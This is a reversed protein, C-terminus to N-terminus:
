STQLTSAARAAGSGYAVWRGDPSVSPNTQDFPEQIVPTLTGEGDMSLMGVDSGTDPNNEEYVLHQGGESWSLPLRSFPSTLLHEISGTGDTAKEYRRRRM